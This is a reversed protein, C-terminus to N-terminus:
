WDVKLPSRSALTEEVILPPVTLLREAVETVVVRLRTPQSRAMTGLYIAHLTQHPSGHSYCAIYTTPVDHTKDAM